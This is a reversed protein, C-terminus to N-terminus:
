GVPLGGTSCTFGAATGGSICNAGAAVTGDTCPIQGEVGEDLRTLTPKGYLLEKDSKKEM